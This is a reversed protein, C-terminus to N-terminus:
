ELNLFFYKYFNSLTGSIKRNQQLYKYNPPWCSVLAPAQDPGALTTVPAAEAPGVSGRGRGWYVQSQETRAM